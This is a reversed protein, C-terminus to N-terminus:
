PSFWKLAVDDFCIKAKKVRLVSKMGAHTCSYAKYLIVVTKMARPPWNHTKAVVSNRAVAGSKALARGGFGLSSYTKHRM